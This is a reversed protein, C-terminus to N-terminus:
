FLGNTEVKPEYAVLFQRVAPTIKCSALPVPNTFPTFIRIAQAHLVPAFHKLANAAVKEIGNTMPHNGGVKCPHASSRVCAAKSPSGTIPCSRAPTYWAVLALRVFSPQ